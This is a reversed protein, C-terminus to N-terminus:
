ASDLLGDIRDLIVIFNCHTSGLIFRSGQYTL